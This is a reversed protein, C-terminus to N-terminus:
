ATWPDGGAPPLAGEPTDPGQPPASRFLGMDLTHGSSRLAEYFSPVLDCASFVGRVKGQGATGQAQFRFIEQLQIKGSEIGTVETISTVIRSGCAFRIQQVVIDVASQIQERIAQLPLEIGSMLVMTELRV